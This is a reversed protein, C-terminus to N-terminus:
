LEGESGDEDRFFSTANFSRMWSIRAVGDEAEVSSLACLPVIATRPSSSFLLCTRSKNVGTNRPKKDRVRPNAGSVNSIPVANPIYPNSLKLATLTCYQTQLPTHEKKKAEARDANCQGAMETKEFREWTVGNSGVRKAAVMKLLLFLTKRGKTPSCKGKLSAEGGKGGKGGGGVGAAM